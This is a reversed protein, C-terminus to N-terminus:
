FEPKYVIGDIELEIPMDTCVIITRLNIEGAEEETDDPYRAMVMYEETTEESEFKFAKEADQWGELWHPSHSKDWFTDKTYPNLDAPDCHPEFAERGEKRFRGPNHSGM